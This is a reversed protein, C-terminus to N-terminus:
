NYTLRHADSMGSFNKKHALLYTLIIKSGNVYLPRYNIETSNQLKKTLKQKLDHTYNHRM